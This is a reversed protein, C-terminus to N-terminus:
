EGHYLGGGFGISPSALMLQTVYAQTGPLISASAALAGMQGPTSTGGPGPMAGGYSAGASAPSTTSGTGASATAATATAPAASAVNTSSVGTGGSADGQISALSPSGGGAPQQIYGLTPGAQAQPNPNSATAAAGSGAFSTFGALIDKGRTLVLVVLVLALLWRSPKELGPVYGLGLIAAIAVAWKFFGPVDTELANALDAHTGQYAVMFVIAGVLLLAFPM